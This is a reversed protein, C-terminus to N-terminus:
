NLRFGEKFTAVMVQAPQLDIQQDLQWTYGEAAVDDNMHLQLRHSGAPIAIRQYMSSVGDNHLGSAPISASYVTEGDLKLELQLPSRERPCIEALRMNSGPQTKATPNIPTCEGIIKGAHRIAVKLVAMDEQMPQHTPQSTLVVVPVFFVTFLVAQFLYRKLMATNVEAM